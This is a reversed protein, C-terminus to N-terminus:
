IFSPMGQPKKYLDFKHDILQLKKRMILVDKDPATEVGREQFDDIKKEVIELVEKHLDDDGILRQM